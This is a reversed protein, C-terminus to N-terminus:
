IYGGVLLDHITDDIKDERGVINGERLLQQYGAVLADHLETAAQLPVQGTVGMLHGDKDQSLEIVHVQAGLSVGGGDDPQESLHTHSPDFHM